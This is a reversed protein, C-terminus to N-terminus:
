FTSFISPLFHLELSVRVVSANINKDYIWVFGIIFEYKSGGTLCHGTPLLLLPLENNTTMCLYFYVSEVAIYSYSENWAMGNWEFECKFQIWDVQIQQISLAPFMWGTACYVGFMKIHSTQDVPYYM